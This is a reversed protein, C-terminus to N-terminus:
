VNSKYLPRVNAVQYWAQRIPAWRIDGDNTDSICRLDVVGYQRLAQDRTENLHALSKLDHQFGWGQALHDKPIRPGIQMKRAVSEPWPSYKWKALFGQDSIAINSNDVHLVHRGVSYYGDRDRPLRHLFRSYQNLWPENTVQTRQEILNPFRKLALSDDGAIMFAPFRMALITPSNVNELRRLEGRLDPHVVFETTTLAMRWCTSLAKEQEVVEEDMRYADFIDRNKSDVVRWTSPAQESIIQRSKDTSGSDIMIVEDFLGAHHRIFYPLLMEENYFHTVMGVTPAPLIQPNPVRYPNTQVTIMEELSRGRLIVVEQKPFPLVIWVSDHKEFTGNFAEVIRGRIEPWFNWSFVIICLPRSPDHKALESAPKVPITTGPCYTNQKLPADDVVYNLEFKPERSLMYHLLVMGKAAAGYGVVDYGQEYMSELVDNLWDRTANVQARYRVFYADQLQGRDEELKLATSLTNDADQDTKMMTVLASGGHIPTIEWKVVKLGVRQALKHFSRPSFFSIHEHYVTDFQGDAFMDCQSTQLYVKTQNHMYPVCAALFDVPNSVHALVNQAVIADFAKPMGDYKAANGTGWMECWVAHGQELAYPVLNSAPDVGYTEWDLKKFHNLQSGDNCALELVRRKRGDDNKQCERDVKEAIWHFYQDLTRSTASRYSYNTFLRSRDVVKSLQAHNCERCRMLRLAHRECQLSEHKERRFDNALPQKDLDLVEMMNESDCVRCPIYDTVQQEHDLVERGVLVHNSHKVLDKVVAQPTGRFEFNFDHQFKGNNLLFGHNDEKPDHEIVTQPVGMIQAVENASQGVTSNFSSVHYIHLCPFSNWFVQKGQIITELVRMQDPIWLFARWSEPHWVTIRGEKLASNVMAVHVFDKRQSQSVGVVTGFRLAVMKPGNYNTQTVVFEEMIQERRFLSRTYSDMSDPDPTDNEMFARRQAGSGEAIAATSAFVLLQHPAMRKALRLVDQVNAEEVEDPTHIDCAKRGTLGGLYIVVDFQHLMEDKIVQISCRAVDQFKVARPNRDFGRVNPYGKDRLHKHVESGVYGAAGVIAVKPTNSDVFPRFM